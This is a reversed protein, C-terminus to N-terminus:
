KILLFNLRSFHDSFRGGTMKQANASLGGLFLFCAVMTAIIFTARKM